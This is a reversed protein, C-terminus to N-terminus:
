DYQKPTVVSSHVLEPLICKDMRQLLEYKCPNHITNTQMSDPGKYVLAQRHVPGSACHNPPFANSQTNTKILPTNRDGWM